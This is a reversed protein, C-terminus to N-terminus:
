CHHPRGCVGECRSGQGEWPVHTWSAGPLASGPTQADWTISFTPCLCRLHCLNVGWIFPCTRRTVKPAAEGLSCQSGPIQM